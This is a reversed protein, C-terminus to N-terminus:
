KGEKLIRAIKEAANGEGYINDTNEIPKPHDLVGEVIKEENAGALVNRKTEVLEIWGTDIMMVVGAVHAFYCEKQLGGSDTIVTQAHSTLAVMEDYGVPELIRVGEAIIKELGFEHICKVTRPHFPVIM